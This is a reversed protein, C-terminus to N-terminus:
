ALLVRTVDQGTEMGVVHVPDGAGAATDRLTSARLRGAHRDTSSTRHVRTRDTMAPRRLAALAAFPGSAETEAAPEEAGPKKPYPDLALALQETAAEGLDIASGEYPIEDPADLDLEETESGAPVFHVTFAEAVEQPFEELSLVCVQTVGAELQGEAEIVGEAIRRLRFSCALRSVAPIMLRAAVAALEEPRAEVTHQTPAAGLRDLAVLRSFESM